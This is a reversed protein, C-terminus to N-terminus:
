FVKGYSLGGFLKCTYPLTGVTGVKKRNNLLFDFPSIKSILLPFNTPVCPTYTHTEV